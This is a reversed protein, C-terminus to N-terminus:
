GTILEWMRRGVVDVSRDRQVVERLSRGRAALEDPRDLMRGVVEALAVADGVPVLADSQGAGALVEAIGGSDYGAVATGAAAAELVVLPCPDEIATSVLLDARRLYPSPTSTSPLLRGLDPPVRGVDNSIEDWSSSRADGGIWLCLPRRPHDVLMSVVDFFRESGKRPGPAGMAVVVPRDDDLGPVAAAEDAHEATEPTEAPGTDPAPGIVQVREAPVGLREVLMVAVSESVAAFRDVRELLAQRRAGPPLVRDAVGDLEHVWCVLRVGRARGAVRAAVDLSALTNALVVDPAPGRRRVVPGFGPSPAFRWRQRVREVLARRPGGRELVVTPALARHDDLLEGPRLLIMSVDASTSRRLWRVLTLLAVPAGSRTADHGVVVLSTATM